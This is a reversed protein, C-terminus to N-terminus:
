FVMRGARKLAAAHQQKLEAIQAAIEDRQQTSTAQKQARRLEELRQAHQQRLGQQLARRGGTWFTPMPLEKNL